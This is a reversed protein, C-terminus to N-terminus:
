LRMRFAASNCSLQHSPITLLSNLPANSVSRSSPNTSSPGGRGALKSSSPKLALSPPPVSVRTADNFGGEEPPGASTPAGAEQEASKPDGDEELGSCGDEVESANHNVTMPGLWSLIVPLLVMGHAAGFLVVMVMMRFFVTFVFSESFGLLLIGLLTSSAGHFLPNGMLVLAEIARFLACCGNATFTLLFVVRM